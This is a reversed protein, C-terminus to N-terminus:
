EGLCLSLGDGLPRFRLGSEVDNRQAFWVTIPYQGAQDFALEVEQPDYPQPGPSTVLWADGAQVWVDDAAGVVVPHSGADWVRLWGRWRVAFWAPDGDLGEDVPWWGEGFELIPDYGDHTPSSWWDLTTPDEPADADLGRPLNSYEGWLGPSCDGWDPAEGHGEDTSGPPEAVPVPDAERVGYESCALLWIM